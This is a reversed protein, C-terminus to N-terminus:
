TDCLSEYFCWRKWIMQWLIDQHLASLVGNLGEFLLERDNEELKGNLKRDKPPILDLNQRASNGGVFSQIKKDAMVDEKALELDNHASFLLSTGHDFLPAPRITKNERNRLIEINAGHRDRNLIIYDLAIMRYIYEGWGNRVCFDLPSEERKREMQYYTDLAIKSEGPKKFDISRCLWTEYEKGDVDILANILQYSLHPICLRDLLRDVIVENVCEHGTIGRFADFESLKYYYKIGNKTEQAKLFSGATGSSRRTKSWNLYRLDCLQFKIKNDTSHEKM